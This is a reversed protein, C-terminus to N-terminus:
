AVEVKGLVEEGAGDGGGEGVGEYGEVEGGVVEGALNRRAEALEPSEM